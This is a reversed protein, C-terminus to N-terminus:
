KKRYELPPMGMIKKFAASFKGPNEYGVMGAIQTIPLPTDKIIEAATQMRYERCFAYITKGYIAKFCNKLSTLSIQHEAALEKLTIHRDLSKILHQRIHKVKQVQEMSFYPSIKFSPSPLSSFILLLELIKLRLYGLQIKPEVKYIEQFIHEIKVPAKLVLCGNKPCLKDRLEYLNISVGEIINSLMDRVMKIDILISVGEYIGLPFSSYCVQNELMNIAMDGEGLYAFSSGKFECEFRGRRCHNIEIVDALSEAMHVCTFSSFNNYVLEVGTFLKFATMTGQGKGYDMHYITKAGKREKIQVSQGYLDRERLTVEM